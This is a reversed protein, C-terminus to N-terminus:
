AESDACVIVILFRLGLIEFFWNEDAPIDFDHKVAIAPQLLLVLAGHAEIGMVYVLEVRLM